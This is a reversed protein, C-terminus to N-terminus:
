DEACGGVEVLVVTIDDPSGKIQSEQALARAGHLADSCSQVCAAAEMPHFVKTVGDSMLLILDSDEVKCRNVDVRLNPGLGFYRYIAGDPKQHTRTLQTADRGSILMGVTDGAHFVTLQDDHIWAITGACGGLPRDTGEMFGWQHIHGNGDMLLRQLGGWSAEYLHPDTYFAALRDAMEQAASMGKPASGIGDFVAFLEGRDEKRVVPVSTPLLRYRDEYFRHKTGKAWAVVASGRDEVFVNL